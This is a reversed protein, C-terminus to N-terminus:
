CSPSSNTETPNDNVITEQAEVIWQPIDYIYNSNYAIQENSITNIEQNEQYNQFCENNQFIPINMMNQYDVYCPYEINYTDNTTMNIDPLYYINNMYNMQENEQTQQSEGNKENEGNQIENENMLQEIIEFTQNSPNSMQEGNSSHSTYSDVLVSGHNTLLAKDSICECYITYLLIDNGNLHVLSHKKNVSEKEMNSVCQIVREGFVKFGDENFPDIWKYKYMKITKTAARTKALQYNLGYSNKLYDGLANFQMAEFSKLANRNQRSVENLQQSQEEVTSNFLSCYEIVLNDLSVKVRETKNVTRIIFNIGYLNCLGILAAKSIFERNASERKTITNKTPNNSIM